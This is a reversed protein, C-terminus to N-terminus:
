ILRNQIRAEGDSQGVLSKLEAQFRVISEDTRIQSPTVSQVLHLGELSRCRSLAVYVQGNAFAGRGLDIVMRDFTKGQSKHITVAWALRLPIQTFSGLKEQELTGAAADFRSRYVSWVHSGVSVEQGDDSEVIVDDEGFGRVWGLSGNVYRGAQDNVMFMVRAGVKLKLELDTPADRETFEGTMSGEVVTTVGPLRSLHESNITDAAENTCTLIIADDVPMGHTKRRNLKLLGEATFTRDRVGNLIDVFDSDTQRYVKDLEIFSVLCASLMKQLVKSSFFYPTEYMSAFGERELATVVPPLQYLDGIAIVRVGGFPQKSKRAARLFADMCDMLDARVMSVEDIILSDIREFIDSEPHAGKHKALRVTIGPAFGFFRHITEGNVNMAAVGTPALVPIAKLSTERYHRLLTSKGTGARGTIFVFPSEGEMLKIAKEFQQTREIKAM